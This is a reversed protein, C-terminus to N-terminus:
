STCVFLKMEVPNGDITGNLTFPIKFIGRNNMREHFAKSNFKVLVLGNCDPIPTAGEPDWGEQSVLEMIKEQVRTSISFGM